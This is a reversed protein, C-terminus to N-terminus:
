RSEKSVKYDRVTRSEGEPIAEIVYGLDTENFFLTRNWDVPHGMAFSFKLPPFLEAALV